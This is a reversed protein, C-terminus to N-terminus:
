RILVVTGERAEVGKTLPNDFELHWVYVGAPQRHGNFNGDWGEGTNATSFVLTGKRDYVALQRLVVAYGPPIRFVDNHGDGNPTFASPMRVTYYVEVIEVASTKCGDVTVVSLQYATTSVPAAVPEAILANDLGAAPTWAYGAIMGSVVPMLRLSSGGAIVVASDLGIVPLPYVTMTVPQAAGVQQSCALSGKMVVNVMDGNRLAGDPFVATDGGAAVGNVQWQFGPSPGGNYPVATFVVMSDACVQEASASIGVMTVPVPLVPLSVTNSQVTPNVVCVADSTMVVAVKDGSHLGSFTFVTSDGGAPTGNVQWQYIPLLGGDVPAAKFVAPMGLCVVTDSSGVTVAPSPLPIVEVRVPQSAVECSTIGLNGTQAALLRYLYLGPATAPRALMTTAAGTINSWTGGSDISEQWQVDESPYCSEVTADFTLVPQANACLQITDGAFGTVTQSISSGSPRFTIDDLGIDNGQGGPANNTMRLVVSSIGAPTTFYFAYQKWLPGVTEAIDGTSFSQLVTGNTNEISFTINPLIKGPVSVLNLLWAAFQYSTGGCLGDVQQVYFDNPQYSANILMFHGNPNGTHDQLVDWWTDQFCNLTESIITYYGDNPCDAPQYTLNTIGTALPPGVGAGQGFTIDVIPDGLGGTCSSQAAAAIGALLWGIFLLTKKM